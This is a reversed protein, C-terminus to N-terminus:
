IIQVSVGESVCLRQWWVYSHLNHDDRRATPMKTSPLDSTNPPQSDVTPKQTDSFTTLQHFQDWNILYM